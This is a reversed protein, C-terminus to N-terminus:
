IHRAETFSRSQSRFGVAVTLKLYLKNFLERSFFPDM